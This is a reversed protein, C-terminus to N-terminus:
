QLVLMCKSKCTVPGCNCFLKYCKSWCCHGLAIDMCTTTNNKIADWSVLDKQRSDLAKEYGRKEGLLMNLQDLRNTNERILETIRDKAETIKEQFM